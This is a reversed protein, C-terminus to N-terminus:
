VRVGSTFEREATFESVIKSGPIHGTSSKAAKRYEDLERLESDIYAKSANRVLMAEREPLTQGIIM